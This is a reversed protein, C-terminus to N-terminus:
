SDENKIELLHKNYLFILDGKKCHLEKAMPNCKSKLIFFIDKNNITELTEINAQGKSIIVHAKNWEAQFDEGVFDFDIGIFDNGTTILNDAIEDIGSKLAEEITADNLIPGGRVVFTIIMGQKKLFKLLFKDFVIEGANDGIYLVKKGSVIFREFIEKDFYAFKQYLFTEIEKELDFFAPKDPKVTKQHEMPVGFDIVNGIAALKVAMDLKDTTPQYFKEEIEKELQLAIETYKDKLPKFPDNVGVIKKFLKHIYTANHGPSKEPELKEAILGCTEKLVKLSLGRDAEIFKLISLIQKNFCPICEPHVKM